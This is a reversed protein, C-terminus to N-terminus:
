LTARDLTARDYVYVIYFILLTLSRAMILAYGRQNAVTPAIAHIEACLSNVKGDPERPSLHRKSVFITIQANGTKLHPIGTLVTGPGSFGQELRIVIAFWVACAGLPPLIVM